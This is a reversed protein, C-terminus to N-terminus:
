ISFVNKGIKIKYIYIYTLKKTTYFLIVSTHIMNSFIFISFTLYTSNFHPVLISISSLQGASRRLGPFFIKCCLFCHEHTTMINRFVFFDAVRCWLFLISFIFILIFIYFSSILFFFSFCNKFFLAGAFGLSIILVQIMRVFRRGLDRSLSLKISILVM